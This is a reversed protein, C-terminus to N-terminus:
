LCECQCWGKPKEYCWAVRNPPCRHVLPNTDVICICGGVGCWMRCQCRGKYPPPEPEGNFPTIANRSVAHGLGRRYAQVAPMLAREARLVPLTM